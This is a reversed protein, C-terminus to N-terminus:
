NEVLWLSKIQQTVVSTHEVEVFIFKVKFLKNNKCNQLLVIIKYYATFEFLQDLLLM